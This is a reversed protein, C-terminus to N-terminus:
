KYACVTSWIEAWSVLDFSRYDFFGFAFGGPSAPIVAFSSSILVIDPRVRVVRNILVGAELVIRHVICWIWVVIGEGICLEGVRVISRRANRGKGITVM